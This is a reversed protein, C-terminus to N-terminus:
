QQKHKTEITNRAEQLKQGDNLVINNLLLNRTVKPSGGGKTSIWIYAKTTHIKAHIFHRWCQYHPCVMLFWFLCESDSRDLTEKKQTKKERETIRGDRGTKYNKNGQARLKHQRTNIWGLQGVVFLAKTLRWGKKWARGAM